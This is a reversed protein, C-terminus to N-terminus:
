AIVMNMTPKLKDLQSKADPVLESPPRQGRTTRPPFARLSGIEDNESAAPSYKKPPLFGASSMMAVSKRMQSPSALTKDEISGVNDLPNYVAINSPNPLNNRRQPAFMISSDTEQIKHPTPLESLQPLKQISRFSQQSVSVQPSMRSDPHDEIYTHPSSLSIPSNSSSYHHASGDHVNDPHAMKQPSHDSIYYSDNGYHSAENYSDGGTAHINNQNQQLSNDHYGSLHNQFNNSANSESYGDYSDSSVPFQNSKNSNKNENNSNSDYDYVRTEQHSEMTDYANGNQVYQQNNTAYQNENQERLTVVNQPQKSAPEDQSYFYENYVSKVREFDAGRKTMSRNLGTSDAPVLHNESTSNVPLAEIAHIETDIKQEIRKHRNEDDDFDPITTETDQRLISTGSESDNFTNSTSVSQHEYPSVVVAATPLPSFDKKVTEVVPTRSSVVSIRSSVRSINQSTATTDLRPLVSLPGRTSITPSALSTSSPNLAQQSYNLGYPIRHSDSYPNSVVSVPSSPRSRTHLSSPYKPSEYIAGSPPYATQDFPDYNNLSRQSSSLQPLQYPTQFPNQGNNNLPKQFSSAESGFSATSNMGPSAFQPPYQQNKKAMKSFERPDFDDNDVDIDKSEETEKELKKIHRFHLYILVIISGVLPIVIGLAIAIGNSHVPTECEASSDNPTCSGTARRVLWAQSILPKVTASAVNLFEASPVSSESSLTTHSHHLLGNNM